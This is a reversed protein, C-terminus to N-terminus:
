YEFEINNKMLLKELKPIRSLQEVYIEKFSKRILEQDVGQSNINIGSNGNQNYFYNKIGTAPDNYQLIDVPSISLIEAIAELMSLKIDIKDNEIDQYLEVTIKLHDVMYTEDYGLSNRIETLNRGIKM